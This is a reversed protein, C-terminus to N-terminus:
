TLDDVYVMEATLYSSVKNTLNKMLNKM